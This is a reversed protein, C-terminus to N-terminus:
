KESIEIVRVNGSVENAVLIPNIIDIGKIPVGFILDLGLILSLTVDEVYMQDVCGTMMMACAIPM